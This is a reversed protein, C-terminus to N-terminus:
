GANNIRMKSIEFYEFNKEIGVFQFGLKKAAIGTSGSGMFPDLVTGNEPTILRCLYEMLKIPKVTPHHNQNARTRGAGARPSLHTTENDRYGQEKWEKSPMDDLGANRENTSIGEL